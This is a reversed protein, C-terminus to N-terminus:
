KSVKNHQRLKKVATVDVVVVVVDIVLIVGTAVVVVLTVAVFLLEAAVVDRLSVLLVAVVFVDADSVAVVVGDDGSGDVTVVVFVDVTGDVVVVSQQLLLLEWTACLKIDDCM